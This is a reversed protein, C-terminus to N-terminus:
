CWKMKFVVADDNNIFQVSSTYINLTWQSKINDYMWDIVENVDAITQGIYKPTSAEDGFHTYLIDFVYGPPEIDFFQIYWKNM